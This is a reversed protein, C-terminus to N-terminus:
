GSHFAFTLLQDRARRFKHQVSLAFDCRTSTALIAALNKELAKRKAAITAAALRGIDNASPFARKLWLRLRSPLTDEGAGEAYAVDRVLHALCTQHAEGHGQQAAYRDSCWVKPRHGDM